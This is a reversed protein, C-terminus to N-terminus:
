YSGLHGGGWSVEVTGCDCEEGADLLANGCRPAVSITKVSSPPKSLCNPQARAMFEALQDISCDSFFEPFAENGTRFLLRLSKLQCVVCHRYLGFRGSAKTITRHWM